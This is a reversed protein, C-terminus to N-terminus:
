DPETYRLRLSEQLLAPQLEAVMKVNNFLSSDNSLSSTDVSGSIGNWGSATSGITRPILLIKTTTLPMSMQCDPAKIPVAAIIQDSALRVLKRRIGPGM